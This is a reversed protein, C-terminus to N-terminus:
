RWHEEDMPTAAIMAMKRGLHVEKVTRVSNHRDIKASMAPAIRRILVVRHGGKSSSVRFAGSIAEKGFAGCCTRLDANM